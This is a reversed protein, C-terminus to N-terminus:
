GDLLVPTLADIMGVAYPDPRGAEEAADLREWAEDWLERPTVEGIKLLDIADQYGADHQQDPFKTYNM